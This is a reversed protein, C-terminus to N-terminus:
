KIKVRIKVRIEESWSAILNEIALPIKWKESEGRVITHINSLSQLNHRMFLLVWVQFLSEELVGWQLRSPSYFYIHLVCKIQIWYPLKVIFMQGNTIDLPNTGFVKLGFIWSSQNFIVMKIIPWRGVVLPLKEILLNWFSLCKSWPSIVRRIPRTQSSWLSLHINGATISLFHELPNYYYTHSCIIYM